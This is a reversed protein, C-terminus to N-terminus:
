VASVWGCLRANSVISLASAAIFAIPRSLMIRTTGPSGDRDRSTVTRVSALRMMGGSEGSGSASMLSIESQTPEPAGPSWHLERDERGDREHEGRCAAERIRLEREAPVLRRARAAVDRGGAAAEQVLVAPRHDLRERGVAAVGIGRMAPEVARVPQEDARVQARARAEDVVLFRRRVRKR